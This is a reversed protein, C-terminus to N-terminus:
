VTFVHTITYNTDQVITKHAGTFRPIFLEATEATNAASDRDRRKM